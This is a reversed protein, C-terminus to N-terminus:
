KKKRKLEAARKQIADGFAALIPDSKKSWTRPVGIEDARKRYADFVEDHFSQFFLVEDLFVDGNEAAAAQFRRDFPLRHVLWNRREIVQDLKDFDIYTVGQNRLEGKLSELVKTRIKASEEIFTKDDVLKKRRELVLITGLVVEIQQCLLLCSGINALFTSM